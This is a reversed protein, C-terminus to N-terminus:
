KEGKGVHLFSVKVISDSGSMNVTKPAFNPKKESM